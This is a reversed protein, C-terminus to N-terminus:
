AQLGAWRDSCLQCPRLASSYVATCTALLHHIGGVQHSKLAHNRTNICRHKCASLKVCLHSHACRTAQNAPNRARSPLGIGTWQADTVKQRSTKRYSSRRDIVSQSPSLRTVVYCSLTVRPTLDPLATNTRLLFARQIAMHMAGDNVRHNTTQTLQNLCHMGRSLKSRIGDERWTAAGVINKSVAASAAIVYYLSTLTHKKRFNQIGM